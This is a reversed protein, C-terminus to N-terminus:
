DVNKIHNISFILVKLELQFEKRQNTEGFGPSEGARCGAGDPNLAAAAFACSHVNKPLKREQAILNAPEVAPLPRRNIPTEYRLYLGTSETTESVDSKCPYGLSDLFSLRCFAISFESFIYVRDFLV